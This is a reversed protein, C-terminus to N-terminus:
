SFGFDLCTLSDYYHNLVSVVYRNANEEAYKLALQTKGVGGKGHLLFRNQSPQGATPGFYITSICRNVLLSHVEHTPM